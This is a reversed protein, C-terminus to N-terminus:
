LGLQQRLCKLAQLALLNNSLITIVKNKVPLETLNKLATTIAILKAIYLNIKNRLSLTVLYNATFATKLSGTITTNCIAKGIGVIGNKKSLSTAIV